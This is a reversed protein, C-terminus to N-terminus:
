PLGVPGLGVPPPERSSEDYESCPLITNGEIIMVLRVEPEEPENDLSVEACGCQFEVGEADKSVTDLM